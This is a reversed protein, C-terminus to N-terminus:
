WIWRFMNIETCVVVRGEESLRHLIGAGQFTNQIEDKEVKQSNQGAFLAGGRKCKLKVSEKPNNDDAQRLIEHNLFVKRQSCRGM